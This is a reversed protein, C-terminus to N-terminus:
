CTSGLRKIHSWWQRKEEKILSAMTKSEEEKDEDTTQRSRDKTNLMVADANESNDDDDEQVGDLNSALNESEKIQEDNDEDDDVDQRNISQVHTEGGRLLTDERYKLSTTIPYIKQLTVIALLLLIFLSYKKDM